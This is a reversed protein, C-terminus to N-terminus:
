LWVKVLATLWCFFLSCVIVLGTFFPVKAWGAAENGRPQLLLILQFLGNIFALTVAAHSLGLRPTQCYDSWYSRLLAPAESLPGTVGTWINKSTFALAHGVDDGGSLLLAICLPFGVLGAMHLLRNSWDCMKEIQIPDENTGVSGGTPLLGIKVEPLAPRIKMMM